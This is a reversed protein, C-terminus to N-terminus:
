HVRQWRHRNDHETCADYFEAQRRRFDDTFVRGAAEILAANEAMVNEIAKNATPEDNGCAALLREGLAASRFKRAAKISLEAAYGLALCGFIALLTGVLALDFAHSSIWPKM